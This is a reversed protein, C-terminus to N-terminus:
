GAEGAAAPEPPAFVPDEWRDAAARGQIMAHWQRWYGRMQVEDDSRQPERQMGRSIDSWEFERAAFGKQCSELAEVDDPTAFGGPGLFALSLEQRYARIEANEGRPVLEWQTIQMLGPGKPWWQRFRFGSHTDQFALNPFIVMLRSDDAMRAAREPGFREVLRERVRAVEAAAEETWFPSPSAIPRGPMGVQIGGHGNGLTFARSAQYMAQNNIRPAGAMKHRQAIYSIYTQHVTPLHYGDISNEALLKWNARIDYKATGRIVEYGGVLEGADFTLDMMERARGLYDALSPATAGFNVFYMGRCSDVHPPRGLGHAARDFRSAYGEQGPVAILAGHSDFTWGHYFCSLTDARGRDQRAVMAGRHPCTNYLVRIEGDRGRIMILPREAVTRRVYDGPTPIESDHGVYLWCRDFIREQELDFVRESTMASRHVRFAGCNADEVVLGSLDM